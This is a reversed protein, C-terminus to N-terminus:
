KLRAALFARTKAYFNEPDDQYAPNGTNLIHLEVNPIHSAGEEAGVYPHLPDYKGAFWIVPCIIKHMDATYDFKKFGNALKEKMQNNARVPSTLDFPKKSITSFCYKAFTEFTEPSPDYDYAMVAAAAKDAYEEIENDTLNKFTAFERRDKRRGQAAYSDRKAEPSITPETNLLVLACPHEPHRSAYAIIAYGGSSVGGLIPHEIGLANSFSYIDDGFQDMTWLKPDGDDTRGCGRQDIYVVQLQTSFPKWHEVEIQHDVIGMGGHHVIMARRSPDVSEVEKEDVFVRYFMNIDGINIFPM